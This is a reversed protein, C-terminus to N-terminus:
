PTPAAQTRGGSRARAARVLDVCTSAMFFLVGANRVSRLALPWYPHGVFDWPGRLLLDGCLWAYLGYLYAGALLTAGAFFVPGALLWFPVSWALYQFAWRTSFGYTVAYCAALTKGIGNASREDSRLWALALVPVLVVFTDYDFWLRGTELLFSRAGGGLDLLPTILGLPGWIPEWATTHVFQGRYGFVRQYLLRPDLAMMPVYTTVGTVLAAVGCAIRERWRPFSLILAPLALLGPLKIWLSAGVAVGTRIAQGRVACIAALLLFFAISSDSNGHYASLVIAVPHIAYLGAALWRYPSERLLRTLLFASGMDVTAIPARLLIAFPIGTSQSLGLLAAVSWCALPPHNLKPVARYAEVVGNALVARAHSEWIEVDYTGSTFIVLFGRAVVGAAVLLWFWRGRDRLFAFPGELERANRIWARFTSPARMRELAADTESERHPSVGPM